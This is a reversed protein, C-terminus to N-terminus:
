EDRPPPTVEPDNIKAQGSPQAQLKQDAEFAKMTLRALEQPSKGEASIMSVLRRTPPV